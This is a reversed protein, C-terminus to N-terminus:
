HETFLLFSVLSLTLFLSLCLVLIGFYFCAKGPLKPAITYFSNGGFHPLISLLKPLRDTLSKSKFFM